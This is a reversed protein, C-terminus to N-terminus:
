PIDVCRLPREVVGVFQSARDPLEDGPRAVEIVHKLGFKAQDLAKEVIRLPCRTEGM